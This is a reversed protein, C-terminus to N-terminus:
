RSIINRLDADINKILSERDYDNDEDDSDSYDFNPSFNRGTSAGNSTSPGPMPEEEFMDSIRKKKSMTGNNLDDMHHHPKHKM